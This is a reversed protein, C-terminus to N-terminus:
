KGAMQKLYEIVAKRAGADSLHFAMYSDPVLASPSALWKDLTTDDWTLHSDRLADSYKFSPISAAARGYVGRLRPGEKDADPSHCKMCQKQFIEKGRSLADARLLLPAACAFALLLNLIRM